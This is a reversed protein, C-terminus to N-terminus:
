MTPEQWSEKELCPPQALAGVQRDMQVSQSAKCLANKTQGNRPRTQLKDKETAAKVLNRISILQCQERCEPTFLAM